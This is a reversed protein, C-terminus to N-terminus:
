LTLVVTALCPHEAKKVDCEACCHSRFFIFLLYFPCIIESRFSIQILVLHFNVIKPIWNEATIVRPVLYM